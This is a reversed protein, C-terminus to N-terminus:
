SEIQYPIQRCKANLFKTLRTLAQLGADSEPDNIIAYGTPYTIKIM